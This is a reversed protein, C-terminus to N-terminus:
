AWTGSRRSRWRSRMRATDFRGFPRPRWTAGSPRRSRPPSRSRSARSQRPGETMGDGSWATLIAVSERPLTIGRQGIRCKASAILIEGAPRDLPVRQESGALNAVVRLGGREVVVWRAAADYRVRVLDLRPDALEPTAKRLAILRRHWDLMSAHPEEALEAWDLRSREFTAPDQPDPM